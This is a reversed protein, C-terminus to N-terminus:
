FPPEDDPGPPLEDSPRPTDDIAAGRQIRIGFEKPVGLGAGPATLTIEILDGVAPNTALLGRRLRTQGATLTVAEGVDLPEEGNRGVTFTSKTLEVELMPCIAGNFDTGGDSKYALVKGTVQQGPTNGWAYYAGRPINITEWDTM